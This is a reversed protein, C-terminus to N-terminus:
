ALNGEEQSEEEKKKRVENIKIIGVLLIIISIPDFIAAAMAVDLYKAAIIMGIFGGQLLAFMIVKDLPKPLAIIGATGILALAASVTTLNVFDLYM